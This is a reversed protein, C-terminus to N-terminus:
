RFTVVHQDNCIKKSKKRYSFKTLAGVSLVCHEKIFEYGADTKTTLGDNCKNQTLFIWKVYDEAYSANGIIRVILKNEAKIYEATNIRLPCLDDLPQHEIKRREELLLKAIEKRCARADQMQAPIADYPLQSYTIDNIRITGDAAVSAGLLKAIGRLEGDLKGTVEKKSISGETRISDCIQMSFRSIDDLSENFPLASISSAM